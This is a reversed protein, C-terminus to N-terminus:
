LLRPHYFGWEHYWGNDIYPHDYLRYVLNRFGFLGFPTIYAFGTITAIILQQSDTLALPLTWGRYCGYSFSVSLTSLFIVYMMNYM